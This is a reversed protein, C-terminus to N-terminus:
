KFTRFPNPHFLGHSMEQAQGVWSALREERMYDTVLARVGRFFEASQRKWHGYLIASGGIAEEIEECILLHLNADKLLNYAAVLQDSKPETENRSAGFLSQYTPYCSQWAGHLFLGTVLWLEREL